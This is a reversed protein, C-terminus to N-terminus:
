ETGSPRSIPDDTAGERARKYNGEMFVSAKWLALTEYWRIAGARRGSRQEYRAILELRTPFGEQRTVASPEFMGPEPDGRDSWLACLYGLDALPDGITAM